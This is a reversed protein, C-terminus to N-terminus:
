SKCMLNNQLHSVSCPSIGVFMHPKLFINYSMFYGKDLMELLELEKTIKSCLTGKLANYGSSSLHM